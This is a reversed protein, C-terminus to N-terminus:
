STLEGILAPAVLNEHMATLVELALQLKKPNIGRAARARVRLICGRVQEWVPQVQPTPRILKKRRDGTDAHRRIWGDREM